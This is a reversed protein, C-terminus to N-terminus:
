EYRLADVVQMRVARYAPYLGFVVGIVISSIVSFLLMNLPLAVDIHVPIKLTAELAMSGMEAIVKSLIMGLIVGVATGSFSLMFSECLFQFIIMFDTAGLAKRVGIESTRETVTILMVNMIGIGGILLSICAIVFVVDLIIQVIEKISSISESLVAMEVTWKSQDIMKDLRNALEEKFADKDGVNKLTIMIYSRRWYSDPLIETFKEELYTHNIFLLSISQSPDDHNVIGIFSYTGVIVVPIFASNYELVLTKGIPDEGDFLYDGMVDAILCTSAYHLEDTRTIDRGAVIKLASNSVEDASSGFAMVPIQKGNATCKNSTGELAGGMALYSDGDMDKELLDNVKRVDLYINEPIVTSGYEDKIVNHNDETPVIEVYVQDNKYLTNTIDTFTDSFSNGLVVILILSLIGVIIGLMTLLSRVKNKFMMRISFTFIEWM